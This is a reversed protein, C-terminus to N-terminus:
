SILIIERYIGEEKSLLILNHVRFLYSVTHQLNLTFCLQM